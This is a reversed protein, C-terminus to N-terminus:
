YQYYKPGPQQPTVGDTGPATPSPLALPGGPGQMGEWTRSHRGTGKLAIAVAKAIELDGDTHTKEEVKQQGKAKRRRAILIYYTLGSLLVGIFIGTLLGSSTIEMSLYLNFLGLSIYSNTETNYERAGLALGGEEPCIPERGGPCSSGSGM